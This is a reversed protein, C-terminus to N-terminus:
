IRLIRCMTMATHYNKVCFLMHSDSSVAFRVPTRPLVRKPVNESADGLSDSIVFVISTGLRM